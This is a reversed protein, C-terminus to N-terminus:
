KRRGIVYDIACDPDSRLNGPIRQNADSQVFECVCHAAFRAHAWKIKKTVRAGSLVEKATGNGRRRCIKRDIAPEAFKSIKALVGVRAIEEVAAHL